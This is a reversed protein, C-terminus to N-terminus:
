AVFKKRVIGLVGGGLLFLTSAVPELVATSIGVWAGSYSTDQIPVTAVCTRKGGGKVSFFNFLRANLSASLHEINFVVTDYDFKQVSARAEPCFM